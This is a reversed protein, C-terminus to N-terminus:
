FNNSLKRASPHFLKNLYVKKGRKGGKLRDKSTQDTKPNVAPAMRLSSFVRLGAHSERKKPRFNVNFKGPFTSECNKRESCGTCYWANAEFISPCS